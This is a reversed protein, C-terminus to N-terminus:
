IWQAFAGKSSLEIFHVTDPGLLQEVSTAFLKSIETPVYAQISGGFGGGHIRSAGHVGLAIDSLALAVMAPQESSGLPSVNQLYQASSIGSLRTLQLFLEVDGASM